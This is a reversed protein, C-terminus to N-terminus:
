LILYGGVQRLRGAKPGHLYYRCLKEHLSQKRPKRQRRKRAARKRRGRKRAAVAVVAPVLPGRRAQSRTFPM